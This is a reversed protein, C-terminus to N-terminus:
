KFLDCSTNWQVLFTGGGGERERDRRKEIFDHFIQNQIFYDARHQFNKISHYHKRQVILIFLTLFMKKFIFM